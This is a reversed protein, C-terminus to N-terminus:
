AEESTAHWQPLASEFLLTDHQVAQAVLRACCRGIQEHYEGLTSRHELGYQRHELLARATRLHSARCRGFGGSQSCVGM